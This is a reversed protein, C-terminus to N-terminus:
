GVAAKLGGVASAVTQTGGILGGITMATLIGGKLHDGDVPNKNFPAFGYDQDYVWATLLYALTGGMFPNLVAAKLLGLAEKIYEQSIGAKELKLMEKTLRNAVKRSKASEFVGRM